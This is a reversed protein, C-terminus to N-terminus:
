VDAVVTKDSGPRDILAIGGITLVLGFLITGNLPERFVLWGGLAALATQSANVLNANVATTFRLGSTYAAFAILNMAGALIMMGLADVPVNAIGQWGLQWFSLPALTLAGIGTIMFVVTAPRVAATVTRRISVNLVSYCCGALCAAAAPIARGGDDVATLLGAGGTRGAGACLVAVAVLLLAMALVSRPTVREGLWLRGLVATSILSSGVILPVAIALGVIGMAWLSALNGGLETLLGAIILIVLARGRPFIQERRWGLYLLWPGVVAVSVTEKVCVAWLPNARVSLWRLCLNTAAYIVAATACCAVGILAPDVSAALPVAKTELSKVLLITPSRAGTSCPM